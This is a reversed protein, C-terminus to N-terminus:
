TVPVEKPDDWSHVLWGREYSIAPNAHVYGHCGLTGTGCLALLNAAEDTGGHKRLKRHHKHTAEGRCIGPIAIQCKM